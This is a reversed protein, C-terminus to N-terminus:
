PELPLQYNLWEATEDYASKVQYNFAYEQPVMAISVLRTM